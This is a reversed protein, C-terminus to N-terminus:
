IDNGENDRLGSSCGGNGDSFNRAGEMKGARESCEDSSGSFDEAEFTGHLYPVNMKMYNNDGNFCPPKHVIHDFFAPFRAQM